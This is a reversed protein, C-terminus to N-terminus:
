HTHEHMQSSAFAKLQVSYMLANFQASHHLTWQEVKGTASREESM